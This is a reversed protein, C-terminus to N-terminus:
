TRSWEVTVFPSHPLEQEGARWIWTSAAGDAVELSKFGHSPYLEAVLANKPTPRYSAIVDTVGRDRLSGLLAGLFATEVQRAIVRCSMVLSEIVARKGDHRAVAVIVIGHNGFRDEATGLLMTATEPEAMFAALEAQTFRRTTPNFQNTREHLQTVRPLARTTVPEIILRQHLESLYDGYSSATAKLERARRIALYMAPRESDEATLRVPWTDTLGRLWAPRAAPDTPMEPVRVDPCLRRMAEREHPSDDLFMFSDLGLDLDAALQRINDPKPQWNIATGAFDDPRLLMGPHSALVSIADPNNKSLAVLLKGQAKLRLCEAQFAKFANGPPDDGCALREMGDDGVVGGWLTNDFDLAIVKVPKAQRSSWAAAFASALANMAPQTYAFRGYFWLRQDHRAEPALRGLAVDSDILALGSHKAALRAFRENAARVLSGSGAEHFADIHGMRPSTTTPLTNIMLPRGTRELFGAIAEALLDLRSTMQQAGVELGDRWTPEGLANQDLLVFLGNEESPAASHLESFVSGYPKDDVTIRLGNRAFAPSLAEAFPATTSFGAVGIKVTPLSELHHAFPKRAARLAQPTSPWVALALSCAVDTAGAENLKRVIATVSDGDPMQATVLEEVAELIDDAPPANTPAANLAALARLDAALGAYTEKPLAHGALVIDRALWAPLALGTTALRELLRTVHHPGARKWDLSPLLQRQPVLWPSAEILSDILAGFDPAAVPAHTVDAQASARDSKSVTTM